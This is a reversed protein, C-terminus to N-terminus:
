TTRQPLRDCPRRHEQVEHRFAGVSTEAIEVRQFGDGLLRTPTLALHSLRDRSGLPSRLAAARAPASASPVPPRSFIAACLAAASIHSSCSRPMTLSTVTLSLKLANAIQDPRGGAGLAKAL